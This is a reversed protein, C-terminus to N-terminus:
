FLNIPAFEIFLLLSINAFVGALLDDIVIGSGGHVHQDFWRIPWPKVIDFIRFLVFGAIVAGWSFPVFLMTILFGAVEDIVIAGHDHTGLEKSLQGSSWIGLLIVLLTVCLYNFANQEAILLYLPIAALTGFTGPAFPICGSGFFCPM